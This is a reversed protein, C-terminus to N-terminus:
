IATKSMGAPSPRQYTEQREHQLESLFHHPCKKPLVIVALCLYFLKAKPKEVVNYWVQAWMQVAEIAGALGGVMTYRAEDQWTEM